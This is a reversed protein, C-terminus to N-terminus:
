GSGEELLMSLSPTHDFMARSLTKVIEERRKILGRDWGKLDTFATGYTLHLKHGPSDFAREGGIDANAGTWGLSKLHRTESLLLDDSSSYGSAEVVLEWGCFANAGRDCKQQEVVIRAGAVLPIRGVDPSHQAGGSGCGALAAAIAPLAPVGLRRALM